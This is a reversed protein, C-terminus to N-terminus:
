CADFVYAPRGIPVLNLDRKVISHTAGYAQCGAAFDNDRYEIMLVHTGYESVYAGCENYRSCEEAVSFDTGMEARRPLLDTSNKQAIALGEAHARASLLVMLAVANDQSIRGGSRSYTDLNDVEVADFGDAACKVIWGGEVAAIRSRKDATSVDLLTENWDPDIIPNGSSDRLILDADWSGEEGPQIQFGNVYCINYLGSAPAETRDRSVISVGAPPPYAGGLQYDFGANDPPLRVTLGGDSTTGGTAAVGGSAAPSGGTTTAGGNGGGAAGGAGGTTPSGGTGQAGGLGAGGTGSTGAGSAGAGSAAAAGSGGAGAVGGAGTSGGTSLMASADTQNENGSCAGIAFSALISAV